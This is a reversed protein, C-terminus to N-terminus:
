PTDAQHYAVSCPDDPHTCTLCMRTDDWNQDGCRPCHTADAPVYWSPEGRQVVFMQDAACIVPTIGSLHQAFRDRFEQAEAMTTDRGFRVVLRDGPHLVTAEAAGDLIHRQRRQLRWTLANAALAIGSLVIAAISAFTETM